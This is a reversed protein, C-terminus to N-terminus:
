IIWRKKKEGGVGGDQAGSGRRKGRGKGKVKKGNGEMSYWDKKFNVCGPLSIRQGDVVDGQRLNQDGEEFRSESDWSREEGIGVPTAPYDFRPTMPVGAFSGGPMSSWPTMPSALGLDQAKPDLVNSFTSRRIPTSFGGSGLGSGVSFRRNRPDLDGHTESLLNRPLSTMPVKSLQDPTSTGSNPISTSPSGSTSTSSPMRLRLLTKPKIKPAAPTSPTPNPSSISSNDNIGTAPQNFNSVSSSSSSVIGSMDMDMDMSQDVSTSSALSNSSDLTSASISLPHQSNNTGTALKESTPNELVSGSEIQKNQNNESKENNPNLSSTPNSDKEKGKKEREKKGGSRSEAM